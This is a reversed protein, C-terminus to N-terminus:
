LAEAGSIIEILETTIIAQRSRNFKLTLSNILEDANRTANDMATMRAGEESAKSQLLGYKVIGNIHLNILTGIFNPGEYEYASNEIHEEALEVPLVSIKTMIQSLANKFENYYLVCNGVKDGDVLEMIKDTIQLMVAYQNDKSINYYEEILEFYDTKLADYGKKGIIILKAKQGKNKLKTIDRKVTKIIQSNFSGCLGRESTTVLLLAPKEHDKTFFKKENETLSLNNIHYSIDRMIKALIQSFDNLDEAADKVKRLKAASVVQMAKTIKQTSKVSKVRDRLQKLDSM